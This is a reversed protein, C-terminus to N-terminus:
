TPCRSKRVGVLSSTAEIDSKLSITLRCQGFNNNVARGTPGIEVSEAEFNAQYTRNELPTFELNIHCVVIRQPATSYTVHAAIVTPRNAPLKAEEYPGSSKLKCTEADLLHWFTGRKIKPDAVFFIEASPIGPELENIPMRPGEYFGAPNSYLPTSCGSMTATLSALIFFAVFQNLLKEMYITTRATERLHSYSIYLFTKLISLHELDPKRAYPDPRAKQRSNSQTRGNLM